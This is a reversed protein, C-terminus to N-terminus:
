FELELDSESEDITANAEPYFDSAYENGELDDWDEGDDEGGDRGDDESGVGVRFGLGVNKLKQREVVVRKDRIKKRERQRIFRKFRKESMRLMWEWKKCFTRADVYPLIFKFHCDHIKYREVFLNRM